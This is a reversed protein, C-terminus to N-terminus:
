ETAYDVDSMEIGLAFVESLFNDEFYELAENYTYRTRELVLEVARYDLNSEAQVEFSGCKDEIYAISQRLMHKLNEDESSHSIHMREKFTNLLNELEM